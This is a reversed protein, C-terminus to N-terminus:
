SIHFGEAGDFIAMLLKVRLKEKSEYEPLDLEYSCTHAVPLGEKEGEKRRIRIPHQKFGGIPVKVSGSLYYYFAGLKDQDYEELIEWFWRIVGYNESFDRYEVHKKMEQLDINPNGSIVIRLEAVTFHSIFDKPIILYFGKLFAQIQKQIHKTMRLECVKKVYEKKNEENVIIESGGEKLELNLREGLFGVEHTFNLELDEVPNKLTWELNKYLDDDIDELDSIVIEKGLIHKLFAKTLSLDLVIGSAIAKALIIGAFELYSLHNPVVDSFPSPQITQHNESIKFLGNSPDFLEKAALTFFERSLGGGDVGSETQFTVELNLLLDRKNCEKFNSMASHILNERKVEIERTDHREINTDQLKKTIQNKLLTMKTDFDIIWLFQPIIMAMANNLSSNSAKSSASNLRSIENSYKWAFNTFIRRFDVDELEKRFHSFSRQLQELHNSEHYEECSALRALSPMDDDNSLSTTLSKEKQNQKEIMLLISFHYLVIMVLPNMQDELGHILKNLSDKGKHIYELLEYINLFFVKTDQQKFLFEGINEFLIDSIESNQNLINSFFSLLIEIVQLHHSMDKIINGSNENPQKLFKLGQNLSENVSLLRTTLYKIAYDHFSLAFDPNDKLTLYIDRIKQIISQDKSVIPDKVLDLLSLIVRESLIKEEEKSRFLNQSNERKLIGCKSVAKLIEEIWSPNNLFPKTITLSLVMDLVSYCDATKKTFGTKEKLNKLLQNGYKELDGTSLSFIDSKRKDELCAVLYTKINEATFEYIKVPNYESKNPIPIRPPFNLNDDESKFSLELCEPSYLVFLLTDLIKIQNAPNIGFGDNFLDLLADIGSRRLVFHSFFLQTAELILRDDMRFVNIKQIEKNITNEEGELISEDSEEDESGSSSDDDESGSDSKNKAGQVFFEFDYDLEDYKSDYESEEEKKQIMMMMMVKQMMMM